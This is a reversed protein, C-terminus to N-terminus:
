ENKHIVCFLNIGLPEKQIEIKDGVNEYLNLLNEESRYILEWDLAYEMLLTTPNNINFNGIILRGGPKLAKYLSHAAKQAVSDSLYDFLGASYILDYQQQVGRAIVNKIAAHKYNFNINDNVSRSLRRLETHTYRLAEEDQDLLDVNVTHSWHADKLLIKQWEVAPGCAVSLFDLSENEQTELLPTIISVLYDARNRVAQAAPEDIYYRQLCRAFLSRGVTEQRYILNMMEVDGAYGLPKNYVRDAFPSQHILYSLKERLFLTASQTIDEPQEQLIASFQDLKPNLSTRLYNAVMNTVTDEFQRISSENSYSLQNQLSSVEDSLHELWDRIEYVMAKVSAPINTLNLTYQQQRAIISHGLRIAEVRDYNIPDNLIEFAAVTNEQEDTDQRVLKLEYSGVKEQEYLFTGRLIAESPLLSDIHIAIGFASYDVIPYHNNGVQLHCHDTDATYRHQRLNHNQKNQKRKNSVDFNEHSFNHNNRM